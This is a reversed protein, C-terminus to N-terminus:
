ANVGIYSEDDVPYIAMVNFETRALGDDARMKFNCEKAHEQLTSWERKGLLLKKPKKNRFQEFLAATAM